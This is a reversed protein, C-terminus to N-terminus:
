DKHTGVAALIPFNAHPLDIPTVTYRWAGPAANPVDILYIGQDEHEVIQGTPSRLTLKLKAGQNEFGLAIQLGGGTHQYTAEAPAGSNLLMPRLSEPAFDYRKMLERVRAESRANVSAFVLYGLLKQVIATDNKSHHFSTFIVTGRKVQFKVLLPAVQTQGLQNRYAGKLCVTVKAPDFAAPRWSPADFTLPITTRQLYAALGADVVSAEVGQPVGPLIPLRSRFEPFAALVIDGRLDSAYLTGGEEVFKRLPLVAQFDEAYIDACTMFVVDHKKLAAQSLLDQHRLSTFRYGEGMKSLVSGIDDHVFATVALKLPKPADDGLRLRRLSFHLNGVERKATEIPLLLNDAFKAPGTDLAWRIPARPPTAPDETPLFPVPTEVIPAERRELAAPMRRPLEFSENLLPPDPPPVPEDFSRPEIIAPPPKVEDPPATFRISSTRVIPAPELPQVQWWGVLVILASVVTLFGLVPAIIWEPLEAPPVVAPVSAIPVRLVDSNGCRPCVVPTGELLTCVEQCEGCTCTIPLKM